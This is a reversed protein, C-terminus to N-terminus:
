APRVPRNLFAVLVALSWVRSWERDDNGALFNRWISQAASVNLLGSRGAKADAFTEDLFPRLEKRMWRPFPLSFGRKPRHALGPPLLDSVAEFLVGKPRAPDFKLAAPQRWFWELLPRDVLPVRLELSHRMSMVDSDRLLVDAMYTRLEWASVLDFPTAGALDEALEAFQPHLPGGGPQADPHLLSQRVPEPFVRRSLAALEPLTRAHTLFDALKRTRATGARWRRLLPERLVAPLARWLPLWRALTPLSRFSPYGGFIEDGGLGSLAVTVGGTRAARSIYYTNVGDGTPQDMAALLSPLDRAVEGGTLVSAHHQTGFHRASAAAAEAESYGTEEFGLSFTRLAGSGAGAMLAVVTASDLGGSLFAGVPVDAVVHARISEDLRARLERVLETRSAAVVGAAPITRFRWHIRRALAGRQFVACEGPLLSHCDRYITRPAPVALWGLYDSVAAPDIEANALRAAHLAGLESAFALRDGDLRYYLPKIGLPDRALFLSQEHRDWAAFAFMGRLRGLCDAGWHAFAALLVETDCDTRFAHGAAALEARLARFNYIAGNFVVHVRGDPTAMPQHGHAPDFIALRRMGLTAPGDSVLGDDDPGRHVMAACMRRVAEDRREAPDRGGVIGAIGCM